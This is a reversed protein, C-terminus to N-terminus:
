SALIVLLYLETGGLSLVVQRHGESVQVPMSSAHGLKQM